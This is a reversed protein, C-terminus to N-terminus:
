SKALNTQAVEGSDIPDARLNAALKGWIRDSGYRKLRAAALTGTHRQEKKVARAGTEGKLSPPLVRGDYPLRSHM